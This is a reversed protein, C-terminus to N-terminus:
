TWWDVSAGGSVVSPSASRDANRNGSVAYFGTTEDYTAGGCGCDCSCYCAAASAEAARGFDFVSRIMAPADAREANETEPNWNVSM